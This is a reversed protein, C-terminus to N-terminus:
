TTGSTRGAAAAYHNLAWAEGGPNRIARFHGLAMELDRLAKHPEGRKFHVIGLQTRSNGQGHRDEISEHLALATHFAQEAGDLDGTMRRIAGLWNLAGAQGLKDGLGEHLQLAAEFDRQAGSLDGTMRRLAGLYTLTNTQGLRSGLERHLGLAAALDHEADAFDGTMRKLNGIFTLTNAQGLRSGAQRYLVVWSPRPHSACWLETIRIVLSATATSYQAASNSRPSLRRCSRRGHEDRQCVPQYHGHEAPESQQGPGRRGLVHLYDRQQVLHGHQAPRIGPRAQGPVVPGEEGREGPDHWFPQAGAPEHGRCAAASAGGRPRLSIAGAVGAPRGGIGSSSMASIRRSARSFWRHPTTPIWPSSRRSPCRTADVM